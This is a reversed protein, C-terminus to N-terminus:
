KGENLGLCQGLNKKARQFLSELAKESIGLIEAAERQRLQEMKLLIVANRQNEPLRNLCHWLARFQEKQELAMGPHLDEAERDSDVPRTHWLAFRKPRMIARRHDLACHVTIRYIWTKWSAEERFEGMARFVKLFVDQTIEEADQVRGCYHLALNFVDKGYSRYLEELTM